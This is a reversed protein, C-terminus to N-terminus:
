GKSLQRNEGLLIDCLEYFSYCTKQSDLLIEGLSNRVIYKNKTIKVNYNNHIFELDASHSYELLQSSDM